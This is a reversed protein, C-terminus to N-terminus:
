VKIEGGHAKIFDYNTQIVSKIPNISKVFLLYVSIEHKVDTYNKLGILKGVQLCTQSESLLSNFSLNVEGDSRNM